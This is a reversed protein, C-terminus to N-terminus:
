LSSQCFLFLANTARVGARNLAPFVSALSCGATRLDLIHVEVVQHVLDSGWKWTRHPFFM